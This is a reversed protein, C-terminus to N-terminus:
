SQQENSKNKEALLKKGIPIQRPLKEEPVSRQLEIKL